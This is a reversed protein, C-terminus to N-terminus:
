LEEYDNVKLKQLYSALLELLNSNEDLVKRSEAIKLSSEKLIKEDKKWDPSLENTQKVEQGRKKRVYHIATKIEISKGIIKAINMTTVMTKEINVDRIVAPLDQFHYQLHAITITEKYSKSHSHHYCRIRSFFTSGATTFVKPILNVPFKQYTCVSPYTNKLKGNKM